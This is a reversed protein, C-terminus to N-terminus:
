NGSCYRRFNTAAQPNGQNMAHRFDRCAFDLRGLKHNNIGRLNILDPRKIQSMKLAKNIDQISKVFEGTHFLAVARMAYSEVFFPKKQIVETLISIGERYRQENVAKKGQEFLESLPYLAAMDRLYQAENNRITDRRMFKVSSDLLTITKQTYGAKYYQKALILVAETDDRYRDVYKEMIAMAEAERGNLFMRSSLPSVLLGQYPQKRYAILGYYISSDTMGLKDYAVSLFYDCRSDFPSSLDNKLMSIAERHRDELILYRAKSVVVPESLATLNPISPMGRIFFDATKTFRQSFNEKRAILQYWLSVTNLWLLWTAILVLLAALGTLTMKLPRHHFLASLGQYQPKDDPHGSPASLAMAVYIALLAQMEPRDAPFNFFADVMYALVGFAPIFLWQLRKSEGPEKRCTHIFLVLIGAFVTLYAIGGPIGTEVTVELFDNHNRISYHFDPSVKNEHELVNVKWNGTGVGTVPHEKIMLLSWGWSTLRAGASQEDKRITSLRELINTNWIADRKKPFLLYQIGSYLAVALVLLALWKLVLYLVKKEGARFFRDLAFALLTLFLLALGLYFARASLMLVSLLAAIGSIYGLWKRWKVGYFILYMAAPLKVFIAASFVNKHSYVSRIDMISAVDGEIFKRINSFVSISDFLLLLNLAVILHPIYERHRSFIVWLFYAAALITFGRSLNMLSEQQNIAGFMSVVSLVMFILWAGGTVSRFFGYHLLTDKRFSSSTLLVGFAIVNLVGIALFKPGNADLTEMGILFVPLLLYALMLIYEPTIVQNRTVTPKPTPTKRLGKKM